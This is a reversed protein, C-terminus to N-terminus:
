STPDTGAAKYWLLTVDPEMHAVVWGSFGVLRDGEWVLALRDYDQSRGGETMCYARWGARVEAEAQEDPATGGCARWALEAVEANLANARELPLDRPNPILEVEYGFGSLEPGRSVGRPSAVEANREM